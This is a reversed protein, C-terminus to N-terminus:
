LTLQHFVDKGLFDSLM